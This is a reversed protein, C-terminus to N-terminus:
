LIEVKNAIVIMSSHEVGNSDAYRMQHIRGLVHVKSGKSLADLGDGEWAKVQHWTTEIVSCGHSDKYMYNTALSFTAMRKNCVTTFRVSGIIGCLEIRNLQKM